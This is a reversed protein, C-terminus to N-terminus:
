DQPGIALLTIESIVVEGIVDDRDLYLILQKVASLNFEGELRLSKLPVLVLKKEGSVCTFTYDGRKLSAGGAIVDSGLSLMFTKSLKNELQCHIILRLYESSTFNMPNEFTHYLRIFYSGNNIVTIKYAQTPSEGKTIIADWKGGAGRYVKWFDNEGNLSQGLIVNVDYLRTQLEYLMQAYEKEVEKFVYIQSGNPNPINKSILESEIPDLVAFTEATIIRVGSVNGFLCAKKLLRTWVKYVIDNNLEDDVIGLYLDLVSRGYFVRMGTLASIWEVKRGDNSQVYIIVSRNGYGFIRHIALADEITQESPKPSGSYYFKYQISLNLSLIAVTMLIGTKILRLENRGIRIHPFRLTRSIVRIRFPQSFSALDVLQGLLLPIPILLALRWVYTSFAHPTGTLIPVSCIAIGALLVFAWSQLLIWATGFCRKRFSLRTLIIGFLVLCYGVLNPFGSLLVRSTLINWNDLSIKQTLLASATAFSGYREEVPGLITSFIGLYNPATLAFSLFPLLVVCTTFVWLIMPFGIVRWKKRNYGFQLFFSLAAIVVTIYATQEHVFFMLSLIIGCLIGNWKKGELVNIYFYAFAFMLAYALYNAYLDGSYRFIWIVYGAFVCLLSSFKGVGLRRLLLLSFFSLILSSLSIYSTITLTIATLYNPKPVVSHM